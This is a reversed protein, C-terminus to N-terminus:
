HSIFIRYLSALRPVFRCLIPLKHCTLIPPTTQAFLSAITTSTSHVTTSVNCRPRGTSNTHRVQRQSSPTGRPQPHFLAMSNAHHEHLNSDKRNGRSPGGLHLQEFASPENQIMKAYRSVAPWMEEAYIMESPTLHPCGMRQSKCPLACRWLPPVGFHYKFHPGGHIQAFVSYHWVRVCAGVVGTPALPAYVLNRCFM